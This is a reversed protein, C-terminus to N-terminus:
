PLPSPCIRTPALLHSSGGWAGRAHHRGGGLYLSSRFGPEARAAVVASCGLGRSVSPTLLSSPVDVGLSALRRAVSWCAAAPLSAPSAPRAPERVRDRPRSFYRPHVPTIARAVSTSPSSEVFAAPPGLGRGEPRPPFQLLRESMVGTTVTGTKTSCPTSRARRNSIEANKIPSAWSRPTASPIATPTALGVGCARWPSVRRGGHARAHAAARSCGASSTLLSVLIVIPVLVEIQGALRQVSHRARGQAEAIAAGSRHSRRRASARPVLLSGGINVTAGTVTDGPVRRATEGTLLLHGPPPGEIIGDTAVKEGPAGRFLDAVQLSSSPCSARRASM